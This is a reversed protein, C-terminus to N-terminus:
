FLYAGVCTSALNALAASSFQGAFQAVYKMITDWNRKQTADKIVLVRQYEESDEQLLPILKKLSEELKKYDEDSPFRHMSDNGVRVSDGVASNIFVGGSINVGM